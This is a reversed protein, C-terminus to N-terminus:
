NLFMFCFKVELIFFFVIYRTIIIVRYLNEHHEKWLVVKGDDDNSVLLRWALLDLFWQALLQRELVFVFPLGFFSVTFYGGVSPLMVLPASKLHFRFSEVCRDGSQHTSSYPPILLVVRGDDTTCVLPLFFDLIM